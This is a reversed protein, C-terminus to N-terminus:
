VIGMEIKSDPIKEPHTTWIGDRRLTWVGRELLELWALVLEGISPLVEKPIDANDNQTYIPVPEARPRDCCFFIEPKEIAPCLWKDISWLYETDERASAYLEATAELSMPFRRWLHRDIMAADERTGNHWRWWVRAEEPLDIDLPLLVADIEEDTIGPAWADVIPAGLARLEADLRELLGVDLFVAM